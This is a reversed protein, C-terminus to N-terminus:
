SCTLIDCYVARLGELLGGGSGCARAVGDDQAILAATFLWPLGAVAAVVGVFTLVETM